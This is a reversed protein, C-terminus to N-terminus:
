VIPVRLVRCCMPTPTAAWSTTSALGNAGEISTLTDTGTGTGLGGALSVTV